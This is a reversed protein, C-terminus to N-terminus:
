KVVVPGKGIAALLAAETENLWKRVEEADKLTARRVIVPQPPRPGPEPTEPTAFETAAARVRAVRTAVADAEARWSALPRDNLTQRLAEDTSVDLPPPRTLSHQRLIAERQAPDLRTWSPDEALEDEAEGVADDLTKCLATVEKRLAAALKAAQPAVRDTEDLLSREALIADLEPAIEDHVPLGAAHRRFATALEWQELAPARRTRHASDM